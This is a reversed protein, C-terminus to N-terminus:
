SKERNEPRNAVIMLNKGFFRDLGLNDLFRSVPFIVTDFVMLAFVNIDGSRKGVLKYILTVFFGLSDAYAAKEIM